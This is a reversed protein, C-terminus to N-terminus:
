KPEMPFRLVIATGEGVKSEAEVTGGHALVIHKVISLGLGTGGHERSRAKEARYFREFIHSLDEPPIGAGTDAVRMEIKGDAAAATLVVRGGSPTYKLANEVLNNFVQAIQSEDAHLIPLGPACEVALTVAKQSAPRAWDAAVENLIREIALPALALEGGHRELRALTLLDEVLANLRQSHKRMVELVPIREERALDPADLLTELYGQFISLPTRLEHSVNAVFEKRMEELQKLRTIDRFIAVVGPEGAADRMPAAHVAFHRARGHNLAVEQSQAGGTALAAAVMEEFVPEDFTRAVSQGFPNGNIEFMRLFTPNVVRVEHRSDVVMVGEDMSALIIRLNEEHQQRRRRMREQEDALRELRKALEVFRSGQHFVFTRPERGDALDELIEELHRWHHLFRRHRFTAFAGVALAFILAFIWGSMTDVGTWKKKELSCSFSSSSSSLLPSAPSEEERWL